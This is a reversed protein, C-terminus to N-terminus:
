LWMLPAAQDIGAWGKFQFRSGPFKQPFFFTPPPPHHHFAECIGQSENCLEGLVQWTVQQSQKRDQSHKMGGGGARPLVATLAGAAAPLGWGDGPRPGGDPDAVPEAGGAGSSGPEAAAPAGPPTRGAPSRGACRAARSGSQPRAGRRGRGLRIACKLDGASGM